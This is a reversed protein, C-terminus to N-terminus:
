APDQNKSKSAAVLAALRTAIIEELHPIASDIKEIWTEFPLQQPLPEEAALSLVQPLHLLDFVQESLGEVKEQPVDLAIRISKQFLKYYSELKKKKDCVLRYKPNEEVASLGPGYNMPIEQPFEDLLKKCVLAAEEYRKASVEAARWLKQQYAGPFVRYFALQTRTLESLSPVAQKSLALLDECQVTEEKSIKRFPPSYIKLMDFIRDASADQISKTSIVPVEFAERICKQFLTHRDKLYKLEQLARERLPNIEPISCGPGIARQRIKPSQKCYDKLAQNVIKVSEQATEAARLLENQFQTYSISSIASM